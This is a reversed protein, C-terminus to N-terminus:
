QTIYRLGFRKENCAYLFEDPDLKDFKQCMPAQHLAGPDADEDDNHGFIVKLGCFPCSFEIQEIFKVSSM